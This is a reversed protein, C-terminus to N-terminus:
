QSVRKILGMAAQPARVKAGNIFYVFCDSPRSYQPLAVKTHARAINEGEAYSQFRQAWLDLDQDSYGAPESDEARRLRAYVLDGDVQEFTLYGDADVLAPVVAYQSLLNTFAKTSFSEHRVEVVHRITRGDRKSPLAKLFQEFAAEDFRAAAPFQWLIPGLKERLEMVGSNFFRDITSSVDSFDRRHTAYRPGKLSFVFSDPAESYWRKFSEPKQSGYFTGNIEISTLHRSAYSLEQAQPLGKPYFEGRWPAFVWGGVGVKIQAM